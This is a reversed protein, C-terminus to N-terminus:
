MLCKERIMTKTILTADTKSLIKSIRQTKTRQIVFKLM